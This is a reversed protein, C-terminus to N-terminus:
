VHFEEDIEEENRIYTAEGITKPVVEKICLGKILAFFFITLNTVMVPVFILESFTELSLNYTQSFVVSSILPVVSDLLALLAFTKGLEESPVLKSVMSRSVSNVISGLSCFGGAIYFSVPTPHSIAIIKSTVSGLAGIIVIIFDRLKLVNTLFPVLLLLIPVQLGNEFTKLNSFDHINWNFNLQTYLYIMSKEGRHFIALGLMSISLWLLTRNPRKRVLTKLSDLLNASEFIDKWLGSIPVESIHRQEPKTQWDLFFIAYLLAIVIFSINTLFVYVFSHTTSLIYSGLAVGIPGSLSYIASSITLRCTRNQDTSTDSVYSFCSSFTAITAGGISGPITVIFIFYNLPINKDIIVYLYLLSYILEGTLGMILTVKRGRKDSWAGIYFALIIPIIQRVLGNWQLFNSVDLQIIKKNEISLSTCNEFGRHECAREFYISDKIVSVVLMSLSYFFLTPEVTIM